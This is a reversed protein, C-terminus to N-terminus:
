IENCDRAVNELVMSEECQDCTFELRLDNLSTVHAALELKM